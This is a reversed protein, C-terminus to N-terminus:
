KLDKRKASQANKIARDFIREQHWAILSLEAWLAGAFLAIFEVFAIFGEM